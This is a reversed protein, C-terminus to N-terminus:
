YASMTAKFFDGRLLIPQDLKKLYERQMPTEAAQACPTGLLSALVSLTLLFVFFSKTLSGIQRRKSAFLIHRILKFM